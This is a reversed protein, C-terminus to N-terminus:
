KPHDAVPNQGARSATVLCSSIIVSVVLVATLVIAETALRRRKNPDANSVLSNITLVLSTLICVTGVLSAVIGFHFM